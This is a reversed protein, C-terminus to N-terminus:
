GWPLVPIASGNLSQLAALGLAARPNCWGISVGLGALEVAAYPHPPPASGQLVLPSASICLRAPGEAQLEALELAAHPFPPSFVCDLLTRGQVWDALQIPSHPPHPATFACGLLTGGACVLWSWPWMPFLMCLRAPYGLSTRPTCLGAAERGMRGQLGALESWPLVPLPLISVLHLM